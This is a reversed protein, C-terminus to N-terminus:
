LNDKWYKRKMGDPEEYESVQYGWQPSILTQHTPSESEASVATGPCHIIMGGPKVVREIEVLEAELHWGLAHSTIFVDAFNDPLPIAHLFGDLVFVNDRGAELTKERIFERLRTVPEVAFIQRAYEALRLTVRGTGAGGEVVTAENLSILNTIEALDWNHFELEDYVQPCKDYVLLDAITWVLTDEFAALENSNSTPVYQNAVREIFGAVQPCKKLIFRKIAPYAWLVAALEREPIWGPWYSIQFSELLYLDEVELIAGRFFKKFFNSKSM